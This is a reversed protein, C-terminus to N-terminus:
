RHIQVNGGGLVGSRDYGSALRLRVVDRGKGPEGLDRATLAFSDSRGDAHRVTGTLTAEDENVVLATFSVLTVDIAHAPDRYRLEGTPALSGRAHFAFHVRENGKGEGFWGGATVHGGAGAGPGPLAAGLVLVFASTSSARWFADGAFGATVEHVGPALTAPDIPVLADGRYDTTGACGGACPGPAGDIDFQVPRGAVAGGDSGTLRAVLKGPRGHVLVFDDRYELTTALAVAPARVEDVTLSFAGFSPVLAPQSRSVVLVHRGAAPTRVVLEQPTAPSRAEMANVDSVGQGGPLFPHTTTVLDLDADYLYLDYVDDAAGASDHVSFRVESLGAALEVGLMTWDGGSGLAQGVVSPWQTDAKAYVDAASDYTGQPGISGAGVDADHLPVSAFVPVRLVTGNSLAVLLRGSYHGPRAGAPVAVTVDVLADGGGTVTTSGPVTMWAAPLASSGDSPRGPEFSFVAGLVGAGPAAHLVFRQTRSSGAPVVGAQFTGQLDRRGVGGEAAASYIVAGDRLAAVARGVNIKGAGEALPGVYPDDRINRAGVGVVPFVGTFGIVRGELLDPGATNMLAARLLAYAPARALSASGSAGSPLAGHRARYAALVLAASGSAAPAAMSTGSVTAYLPDLRTGPNVDQGAVVTGASAQAAVINYGPAVVDPRLLLDGSPGRSSIPSLSPPPIQGAFLEGCPKAEGTDTGPDHAWGACWEGALTDDHTVDYDKISAGVSLAQAASGPAELVSGIYPGSNGSSGVFLTGYRVALRNLVYEVMDVDSDSNLRNPRAESGVSMNVIHAGVSCSGPTSDAPMAAWEMAGILDSNVGAGADTLSKGIALEAGPAIGAIRGNDAADPTGEGTGAAISAVHTGHGNFDSSGVLPKCVGGNFDRADVVKAPALVGSWHGFDQDDLDPHLPDIGTDLVAIRVGAGTNGAAWQPPAGLDGPNGRTQDAIPEHSQSLVLEIPALRDVWPLAAVSLVTAPDSALALLSVSRYSRLVRAGLATIQAQHAADNPETLLAFYPIEGARYGAVLAPIRHDLTAAGAVLAALDSRLKAAAAQQAEAGATESRGGALALLVAVAGVVGVTRASRSM